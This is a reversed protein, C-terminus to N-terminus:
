QCPGEGALGKVLNEVAVLNMANRTQLTATGTHPSFVVNRLALLPHGRPLPEPYTVDLGAAAVTSGNTLCEVLAEQDILEGRGINILISGPRCRALATANMMHRTSATLPAVLVIYDSEELLSGLDSCFRAGGLSAEVESSVPSRNHYLINMEFGRARRAIAQGIRGLGVIGCTAGTVSGYGFWLADYRSTTPSRAIADGEVVRRATALLLAMAMDATSATLEPIPTNGVIIGRAACAELDIHDLGVGQNSVVRLNPFRDLCSVDIRMRNSGACHLLIGRASAADEETVDRLGPYLRVSFRCDSIVRAQISPHFEANLLVLPRAM